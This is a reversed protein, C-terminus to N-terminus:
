SMLDVVIGNVTVKKQKRDSRSHVYPVFVATGAQGEVCFLVVFDWVIVVISWIVTSLLWVLWTRAVAFSWIFIILHASAASLVTEMELLLM